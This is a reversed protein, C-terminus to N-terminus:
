KFYLSNSMITDVNMILTLVYLAFLLCVNYSYGKRIQRRRERLISQVRKRIDESNVTKLLEKKNLVAVFMELSERHDENSFVPLNDGPWRKM